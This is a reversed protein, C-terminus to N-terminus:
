PTRQYKVAEFSEAGVDCILTERCHEEAGLLGGLARTRHYKVAEFQVVGVYFWIIALDKFLRMLNRLVLMM